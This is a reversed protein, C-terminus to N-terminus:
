ADAAAAAVAAGTETPEGQAADSGTITRASTATRSPLDGDLIGAGDRRRQGIGGGDQGRAPAAPAAVGAAGPRAAGDGGTRDAGRAAVAARAASDRDNRISSGDDACGSLARVANVGLAHAAAAAIAAEGGGCCEAGVNGRDVDGDAPRTAAASRAAGDRDAR